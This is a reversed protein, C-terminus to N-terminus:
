RTSESAAAALAPKSLAGLRLNAWVLLAILLANRLGLLAIGFLEANVISDYNLPYVWQTLAAIVL